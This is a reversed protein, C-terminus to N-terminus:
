RKEFSQFGDLVLSLIHMNAKLNAYEIGNLESFKRASEWYLDRCQNKDLAYYCNSMASYFKALIHGSMGGYGVFQIKGSQLVELNPFDQAPAQRNELSNVETAESKTKLREYAVPDALYKNTEESILKNLDENSPMHLELAIAERLEEDSATDSLHYIKLLELRRNVQNVELNEM